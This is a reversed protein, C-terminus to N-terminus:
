IAAHTGSPHLKVLKEVTDEINNIKASRGNLLTQEERNRVLEGMIPDVLGQILSQFEKFGDRIEDQIKIFSGGIDDLRREVRHLESHMTDITDQTDATRRELGLLRKEISGSIKSTSNKRM